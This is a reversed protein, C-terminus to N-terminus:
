VKAPDSPPGEPPLIQVRRGERWAQFGAAAMLLFLGGFGLGIGLVALGGLVVVWLPTHEEGFSVFAATVAAALLALSGILVVLSLILWPKYLRPVPEARPTM